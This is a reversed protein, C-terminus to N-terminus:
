DGGLYVVPLRGEDARRAQVRSERTGVIDAAGPSGLVLHTTAIEGPQCEELLGLALEVAPGQYDIGGDLALAVATGAHVSIRLLDSALESSREGNPRARKRVRFAADLADAPEVFALMLGERHLLAGELEVAADELLGKLERRALQSSKVPDLDAAVFATVQVRVPQSRGRTCGLARVERSGAAELATLADERGHLHELRVLRRERSANEITLMHLGTAVMPPGVRLTRAELRVDSAQAQSGSTAVFDWEPRLGRAHVRYAGRALEVSIARTEGPELEQQALVHPFNGPGGVCYTLAPIPRVSEAPRFALEVSRAFDADFSIQCAPCHSKAALEDLSKLSRVSVRCLPCLLHWEPELM